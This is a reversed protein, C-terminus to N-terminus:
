QSWASLWERLSFCRFTRRPYLCASLFILATRVLILTMLARQSMMFSCVKFLRQNHNLVTCTITSQNVEGVTNIPPVFLGVSEASNPLFFCGAHLSFDLVQECKSISGSLFYAYMGAKKHLHLLFSCELNM